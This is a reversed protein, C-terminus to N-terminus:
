KGSGFIMAHILRSEEESFGELPAIAEKRFGTYPDNRVESCYRGHPQWDPFSSYEHDLGNRRLADVAAEAVEEATWGAQIGYNADLNMQEHWESKGVAWDGDETIEGAILITKIIRPM